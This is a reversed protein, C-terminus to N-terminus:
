RVANQQKKLKAAAIGRKTAYSLDTRYMESTISQVCELLKQNLLKRKNKYENEM